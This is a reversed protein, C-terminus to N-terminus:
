LEGYLVFYDENAKELNAIIKKLGEKEDVMGQYTKNRLIKM